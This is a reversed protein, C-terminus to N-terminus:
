RHERRQQESRSRQARPRSQAEEEGPTTSRQECQECSGYERARSNGSSAAGEEKCTQQTELAKEAGATRLTDKTTAKM